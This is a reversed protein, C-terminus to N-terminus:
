PAPITLPASSGSSMRAPTALAQREVAPGDAELISAANVRRMTLRQGLALIPRELALHVLIAGMFAIGLALVIALAASSAESRPLVASVVKVTGQLLAPHFLYLAYSAAGLLLIAQSKVRKGANELILAGAVVGLAPVGLLVFRLGDNAVATEGFMMTAPVPTLFGASMLVLGLSVSRMASHNQFRIYIIALAAGYLFEVLIPRRFFEVLYIPSAAVYRSLILISFGVCLIGFSRELSKCAFTAAFAGYFFLEYMLTWGLSLVLDHRDDPFESPIFLLSSALIGFDLHMLGNPRFGAVYFCVIFFTALWYLPVIRLFRNILFSCSATKFKKNTYFMIFGSIVFFIDVGFAGYTDHMYTAFADNVMPQLHYFVVMTAAVARLAQVNFLANPKMANWHCLTISEIRLLRICWASHFPIHWWRDRQHTSVVSTIRFPERRARATSLLAKGLNMGSPSRQRGLRFTPPHRQLTSGPPFQQLVSNAGLWPNVHARQSKFTQFAECSCNSEPSRAHTFCAIPEAHRIRHDRRCAWRQRPPDM